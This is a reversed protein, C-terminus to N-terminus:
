HNNGNEKKIEDLPFYNKLYKEARFYEKNIRALAINIIKRISDTDEKTVFPIKWYNFYDKNVITSIVASTGPIMGAGRVVNHLKNSICTISGADESIIKALGSIIKTKDIASDSTKLLKGNNIIVEALDITERKMRGIELPLLDDRMIIHFGMENAADFLAEAVFLNDNERDARVLFTNGNVKNSIAPMYAKSELIITPCRMMNLEKMLDAKSGLAINGELDEVPGIGGETYNVTLLISVDADNVIAEMGGILGKNGEVSEEVVIFKGKSKKMFTDVVANALAATLSVPTELSGQGYIRGFAHLAAAQCYIADRGIVSKIREAEGPTIGRRPSATGKGGDRTVIEILNTEPSATAKAVTTDAGLIEKVMEAAVAFGATDDQILGGVGHTHGIGAHGAIGIKKMDFLTILKNIPLFKDGLM